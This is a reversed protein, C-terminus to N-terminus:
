CLSLQEAEAEIQIMELLKARQAGRGTYDWQWAGARDDVPPPHGMLKEYVAARSAPCKRDLGYHALSTQGEVGEDGSGVTM